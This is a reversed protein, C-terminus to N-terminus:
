LNFVLLGLNFFFRPQNGNLLRRQLHFGVSSAGASQEWITVNLSNGGLAAVNNQIWELCKEQDLLAVNGPATINTDNLNFWFGFAELLYICTIVIIDTSLGVLHSANLL